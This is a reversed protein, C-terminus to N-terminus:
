YPLGEWISVGELVTIPTNQDSTQVTGTAVGVARAGASQDPLARPEGAAVSPGM